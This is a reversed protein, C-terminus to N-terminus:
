ISNKVGRKEKLRILEQYRGILDAPKTYKVEIGIAQAVAIRVECLLEAEEWTPICTPWGKTYLLHKPIRAEAADRLAAKKKSEQLRQRTDDDLLHPAVDGLWKNEQFSCCSLIELEVLTRYVAANAPCAASAILDRM